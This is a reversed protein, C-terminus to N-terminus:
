DTQNVAYFEGIKRQLIPQLNWVKEKQILIFIVIGILVFERIFSWWTILEAEPSLGFCGCDMTRGRLLNIGIGYAFAILMFILIVSSGRIWVGTILFLGVVFEFWPLFVAVFEALWYPIVQYNEVIILFTKPDIIKHWSSILFILGLSIRMIAALYSFFKNSM